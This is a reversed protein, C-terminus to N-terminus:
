NIPVGGAADEDSAFDDLIDRLTNHHDADDTDAPKELTPNAEEESSTRMPESPSLFFNGLEVPLPTLENRLNALNQSFLQAVAASRPDNDLIM